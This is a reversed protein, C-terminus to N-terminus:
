ADWPRSRRSDGAASERARGPRSPLRTRSRGCRRAGRSPGMGRTDYAGRPSASPQRRWRRSNGGPAPASPAPKRGRRNCRSDGRAHASVLASRRMRRSSGCPRPTTPARRDRLTCRSGYGARESTSALSRSRGRRCASSRARGLRQRRCSRGDRAHDRRHATAAATHSSGDPRATARAVRPLAARAMCSTGSPARLCAWSRGPLTGRTGDRDCPGRAPPASTHRSDDM